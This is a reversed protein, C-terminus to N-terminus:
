CIMKMIATNRIGWAPLVCGLAWGALVAIAIQVILNPKKLKM